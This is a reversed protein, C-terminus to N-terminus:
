LELNDPLYVKITSRWLELLLDPDNLNILHMINLPFASPIGLSNHLRSFITQKCLGTELRRDKFQTPNEARLLKILNDHYCALIGQQYRRLNFLLVDDHDCRAVDYANPKLMVPYYHEDRDQHHRPLACYLHCRFKRSHRVMGSIMAMAPGDTTM